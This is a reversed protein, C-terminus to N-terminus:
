RKQKARWADNLRLTETRAAEFSAYTKGTPTGRELQIFKSGQPAFRYPAKM